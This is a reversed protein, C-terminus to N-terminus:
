KDKNKIADTLQLIFNQIVTKSKDDLTRYTKLIDIIVDYVPDSKEILDSIVLTFDNILIDYMDGKGTRLWEENINFERCIVKLTQETVNNKGNEIDSVSNPKLGIQLGFDKQTNNLIQKRLFKIREGITNM